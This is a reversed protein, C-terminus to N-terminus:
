PFLFTRASLALQGKVFGFAGIVLSLSGLLFGGALFAFFLVFGIPALIVRLSSEM